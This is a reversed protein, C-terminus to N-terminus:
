GEVANGGDEELGGFKSSVKRRQDEKKKAGRM